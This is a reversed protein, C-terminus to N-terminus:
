AQLVPSVPMVAAWVKVLLAVVVTDRVTVFLVPLPVADWVTVGCYTAEVGVATLIVPEDTVRYVVVTM